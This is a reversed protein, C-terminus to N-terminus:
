IEPESTPEPPDFVLVPGDFDFLPSRLFAREITVLREDLQHISSEATRLREDLDSMDARLTTLDARIGAMQVSLAVVVTVITGIVWQANRSPM